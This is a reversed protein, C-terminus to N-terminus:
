MQGHEPEGLTTSRKRMPKKLSWPTRSLSFWIGKRPRLACRQGRHELRHACEQQRPRRRSQQLWAARRLGPNLDHLTCVVRFFLSLGRTVPPRDPKGNVPGHRFVRCDRYDHVCRDFLSGSPRPRPDSPKACDSGTFVAPRDKRIIEPTLGQRDVHDLVKEMFAESGLIGARPSEPSLSKSEYSQAYEARLM